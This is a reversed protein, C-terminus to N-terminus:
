NPNPPTDDLFRWRRGGSIRVDTRNRNSMGIM